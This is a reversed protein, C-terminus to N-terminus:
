LQKLIKNRIKELRGKHYYADRCDSCMAKIQMVRGNIRCHKQKIYEDFMESIKNKLQKQEM